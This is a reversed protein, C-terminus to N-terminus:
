GEKGEFDEKQYLQRTNSTARVKQSQMTQVGFMCLVGQKVGLDYM